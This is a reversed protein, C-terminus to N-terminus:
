LLTITDCADNMQWRSHVLVVFITNVVTFCLTGVANLCSFYFTLPIIRLGPDTPLTHCVDPMFLYPFYICVSVLYSFCVVALKPVWLLSFFPCVPRRSPREICVVSWIGGHRSTLVRVAPTSHTGTACRRLDMDWGLIDTNIYSAINKAVESYPRKCWKAECCCM